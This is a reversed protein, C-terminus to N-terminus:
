GRYLFRNGPVWQMASHTPVLASTPTQVSINVRVCEFQLCSLSTVVLDVLSIMTCVAMDSVIVKMWINEISIM